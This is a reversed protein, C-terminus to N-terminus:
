YDDFIDSLNQAHYYQYLISDCHFLTVTFNPDRSRLNEVLPAVARIEATTGGEIRLRDGRRWYNNAIVTDQTCQWWNDRLPQLFPKNKCTKETYNNLLGLLKEGRFLAAWRFVPLAVDLPLAYKRKASIYQKTIDLDLISNKTTLQTVDAMNYVMLMGRQVPPVGTQEPYKVQHLRITASLELKNSTQKKLKKLFYFYATKTKKSWDCDIQIERPPSLRCRENKAAIKKYVRMALSDLNLSDTLKLFVENKIFITPVVNISTNIQANTKSTNKADNKQLFLSDKLEISAVPIARNEAENWVVDFYKAYLKTVQLTDFLLKKEKDELEFISKWYYFARTTPTKQRCSAFFFLILPICFIYKM